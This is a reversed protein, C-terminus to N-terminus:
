TTDEVRAIIEHCEIRRAAAMRACANIESGVRRACDFNRLCHGGGCGFDLVSDSAKVYKRFKRAEIKGYHEALKNQWDFYKIGAAGQYHDSASLSSQFQNQSNM